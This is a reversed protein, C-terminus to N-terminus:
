GEPTEGVPPSKEPAASLLNVFFIALAAAAPPKGRKALHELETRGTGLVDDEGVPFLTRVETLLGGGPTEVDRLKGGNINSTRIRWVAEAADSLAKADAPTFIAPSRDEADIYKKLWEGEGRSLEKRVIEASDAMEQVWLPGSDGASEKESASIMLVDEILGRVASIDRGHTPLTGRHLLGWQKLGKELKPEWQTGAIWALRDVDPKSIGRPFDQTSTTFLEAVKGLFEADNWLEDERRASQDEEGGVPEQPAPPPGSAPKHLQLADHLVSLPRFEAWEARPLDPFLLECLRESIKGRVKEDTVDPPTAVGVADALAQHAPPDPAPPSESREIFGGFFQMLSDVPSVEEATDAEAVGAEAQRDDPPASSEQRNLLVFAAVVSAATVLLAAMSLLGRSPRSVADGGTSSQPAASAPLDTAAPRVRVDQFDSSGLPPFEMFNRGDPTAREATWDFREIADGLVGLRGELDNRVLDLDIDGAGDAPPVLILWEPGRRVRSPDHPDPQSVIRSVAAGVGDRADRVADSAAALAARCSTENEGGLLGPPLLTAHGHRGARPTHAIIFPRDPDFLAPQPNPM